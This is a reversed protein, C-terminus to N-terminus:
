RELWSRSRSTIPLSHPPTPGAGWFAYRVRAGREALGDDPTLDPMLGKIPFLDGGTVVDAEVKSFRWTELGGHAEFIVELSPM